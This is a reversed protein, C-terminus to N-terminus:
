ASAKLSSVFESSVLDLVPLLLDLRGMGFASLTLGPCMLTKVPTPSDTHVFDLAPLLSGLRSMGYVLM